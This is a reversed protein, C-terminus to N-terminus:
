RAVPAPAPEDVPVFREVELLEYVGGALAGFVVHLALVLGSRLDLFWPFFAAFTFFNIAYLGLGLLAGGVVGLLLGGRHLIFAFLAAYLFSLVMHFVFAVAAVVPDFTAPPPLVDRGLVMAGTMRPFVWPSGLLWATSAMQLLFLGVGAFLGALFAARWDVVQRFGPRATM